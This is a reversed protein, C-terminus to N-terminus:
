LTEIFHQVLKVILTVIISKSIIIVQMIQIRLNRCSIIELEMAHRAYKLVPMEDATYAAPHPSGGSQSTVLLSSGHLVIGSM